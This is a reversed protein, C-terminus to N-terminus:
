DSPQANQKKALRMEQEAQHEEQKVKKMTVVYTEIRERIIKPDAPDGVYDLYNCITAVSRMIHIEPVPLDRACRDEVFTWSFSVDDMLLLHRPRWANIVVDAHQMGIVDIVGFAINLAASMQAMRKMYGRAAWPSENESFQLEEPLGNDHWPRFLDAVRQFVRDRFTM